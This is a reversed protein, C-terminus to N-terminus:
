VPLSLLVCYVVLWVRLILNIMNFRERTALLEVKVVVICLMRFAFRFILLSEYYVFLWPLLVFGLAMGQGEAVCIM